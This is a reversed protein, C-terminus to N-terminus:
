LAVRVQHEFDPDIDNGAWVFAETRDNSVFVFAGDFEIPELEDIDGLDAIWEATIKAAIANLDTATNM